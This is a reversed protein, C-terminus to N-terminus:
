AAATDLYDAWDQLMARREPLYEARNYASRVKNDPTHALQREIADPKFGRENAWTSAVSRWGHGTMRGKYGMRYILYLVSNESMPRDTRYESPFVYASGRSRAKMTKLIELAQTSLPVLHDKERKMKGAPLRWLDGDIEAWEMMRLETTRTWTLMLLRCALVSQIEREISLRAMFDPLDNLDLAAFHSTKKRSFAKEPKILDAHNIEMYGNEVAWDFVQSLWMRVRRVYVALGAADMRRLEVLLDERTISRVDRCGLAPLVHMEIGRLANARYGDSVDLRGGWYASVSDALTMGIKASHRERMPDDGALLLGKVADRRARADALSLVPYAGLAMTQQKGGLRYALRWRKEGSPSVWLFLGGGDFLKYAKGAPKAGKCKADTLTNTPM